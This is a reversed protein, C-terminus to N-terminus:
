CQEPYDHLYTSHRTFRQALSPATPDACIPVRAKNALSVVTRITDKPLNADMFVLSSDRFLDAKERICNPKLEKVARMDDLAFQLKGREDIVALYSNTPHDPTQLVAEMDVGAKSTENILQTGVPDDGVISLLRVPQGLRALNEAVNRSFVEL